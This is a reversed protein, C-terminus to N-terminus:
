SLKICHCNWVVNRPIKPILLDFSVKGKTNLARPSVSCIDHISHVTVRLGCLLRKLRAALVGRAIKSALLSMWSILLVRRLFPAKGHNAVMTQSNGIRSTGHPWRNCTVNKPFHPRWHMFHSIFSIFLILLYFSLNWQFSSPATPTGFLAAYALKGAEKTLGRTAQLLLSRSGQM